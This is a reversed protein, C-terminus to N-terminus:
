KSKNKGKNKKSGTEVDGDEIEENQSHITNTKDSDKLYEKKKESQSKRKSDKKDKSM